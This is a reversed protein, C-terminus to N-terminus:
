FACVEALGRYAEKWDARRAMWSALIENYAGGDLAPSVLCRHAKGPEVENGAKRTQVHLDFERRLNVLLQDEASVQVDAEPLEPNLVLNLATPSVVEGVVLTFFNCLAITDALAADLLVPEIYTLRAVRRETIRSGQIDFSYDIEVELTLQMDPLEARAATLKREDLTQVIIPKSAFDNGLLAEGSTSEEPAIHRLGRHARYFIALAENTPTFAIESIRDGSLFERQGILVRNSLLKTLSFSGFNTLQDRL